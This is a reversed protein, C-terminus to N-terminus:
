SLTHYASFSSIVGISIAQVIQILIKRDYGLFKAFILYKVRPQLIILSIFTILFALSIYKSFAEFFDMTNGSLKIPNVPKRRQKQPEYMNPPGYNDDFNEPDYVMQQPQMPVDELDNPNFGLDGLDGLDGGPNFEYANAGFSM